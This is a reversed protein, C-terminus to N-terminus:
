GLAILARVEDDTNPRIEEGSAVMVFAADVERWDVGAIQAWALRYIALQRADVSATGGTKWDVVEFRDGDAFVADIRGNVVRGGIIVSFGREVAVPERGAYRTKAFSRKLEELQSDNTIDEDAAGPLDDVGLLSQQGFVTEVWAHWAIGRAAARSPQRPMPRLLDRAVADPERLARLFTTAGVHEGLRVVHEDAESGLRDEMLATFTEHWMRVRQEEEGEAIGLSDEFAVAGESEVSRVLEAAQVLSARYDQAVPQPWEVASGRTVPNIAGPEPEDAWVLVRCLDPDASEVASRIQKLFRHPGRPKSQGPGWWHGTVTLSEEARTLAVYALREHNRDEVSRLTDVYSDHQKSISADDDRPFVSLESPADSRLTWPVIGSSTLWRGRAKGGPFARESVFPLFVHTFELGKAAFVTMLQVAGEVRPRTHAITVDFREADRLWTLFGGLSVRGDIETMGAALTLFDSLAAVSTGSPDVIASEVDVGLEEIVRGIFDTMPEYTHHRLRTILESIEAFVERARPSYNESPGPDAIADALATVEVVDSGTVAEELDEDITETDPRGRGGALESARAGLAALDRAGVRWRAGTLLRVMSPNATPEHVVELLARTDAVAPDALLAAAGTVQTPVGLNRLAQDVRRIDQATTCLVAISDLAGEDSRNGSDARAAHRDRVAHAIFEVESDITEFLGVDVRAPPADAAPVLPDAGAHEARLETALENAVHLVSPGSRRNEALSYRDASRDDAHPFHLPFSEINDVSAGRWSYIAQCPDGVATVPFGGAFLAQLLRRQAISTDQYEDLLVVDYRARIDAITDPFRDVIEQALRIQDAYEWLDNRAKYSRWTQILRALTIRREAAESIERSKGRGTGLSAMRAILDRDHAILRDPQIALESLEGDLRLMQDTIAVPNRGLRALDQAIDEDTVTCVLRYAHQHRLGDVLLTATPERGIRLGYDTVIRAAFANYTFVLPEADDFGVAAVRSRMAGLLQAAAKNTFTLGLVRSPDVLGNASLFAVRASMSTTKGTGAGAVIVGPTLPASVAEWQSENLAFGLARDLGERGM